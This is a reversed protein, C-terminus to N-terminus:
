VISLSSDSFNCICRGCGTKKSETTTSPAKGATPAALTKSKNNSPPPSSATAKACRLISSTALYTSLDAACDEKGYNPNRPNISSYVVRTPDAHQGVLWRLCQEHLPCHDLFCVIYHDVKDRFIEEQTKTKNTEKM